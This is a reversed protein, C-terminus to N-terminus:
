RSRGTRLPVSLSEDRVAALGELLSKHFADPDQMQPRTRAGRVRRPRMRFRSRSRAASSRNHGLKARVEPPAADKGVASTDKQGIAMSTFDQQVVIRVVAFRGIAVWTATRDLEFPIAPAATGSYSTTRPLAGRGTPL